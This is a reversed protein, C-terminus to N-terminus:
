IKKMQGLVKINKLKRFREFYDEVKKEEKVYRLLAITQSAQIDADANARCFPCIFLCSNGRMKKSIHHKDCFDRYKPFPTDNEDFIPPRMFDKIADILTGGKIVRVTGILEQTTITEDVQMEARWLKKCAGCFQSTYSASIESAVALKGWVTTQLNKDADIESYVDAKKLTAYVKKIKQKGEEFRSVELEYVIKAKHKLALHHIRNRLSHVLSERIRAIKTSPMAFTGRRQDLKLGKVEERLTKLQPDSIFKQDFSFNDIVGNKKLSISPIRKVKPESLKKELEEKFNILIVM